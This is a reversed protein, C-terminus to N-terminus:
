HKKEGDSGDKDDHDAFNMDPHRELMEVLHKAEAPITQRQEPTDIPGHFVEKGDADRVTLTRKGEVVTIEVRGTPDKLVTLTRAVIVPGNPVGERLTKLASATAADIQARNLDVSARIRDAIDPKSLDDANLHLEGVDKNSPGRDLHLYTRTNGTSDSKFLDDANLHFERVIENPQGDHHLHTPADALGPPRKQLTATIKSEQAKHLVVLTIAHGEAISRVLLSLQEQSTLIQDNLMKLVDHPKLGAAEAASGPVVSTILVGFGDPLNLQDALAAPLPGAEVGLFGDSRSKADPHAPPAPSTTPAASASNQATGHLPAVACLAALLLLNRKM